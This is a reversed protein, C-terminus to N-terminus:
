EDPNQFLEGQDFWTVHGISPPLDGYVMAPNLTSRLSLPLSNILQPVPHVSGTTLVSLPRLPTGVFPVSTAAAYPPLRAQSLSSVVAPNPPSPCMLSPVQAGPLSWIGLDSHLQAPSPSIEPAPGRLWSPSVSLDDPRSQSLAGSSMDFRSHWRTPSQHITAGAHVRWQTRTMRFHVHLRTPSLPTHIKTTGTTRLPIPSQYALPRLPRLAVPSWSVSKKTRHKSKSVQIPSFTLLTNAYSEKPGTPATAGPECELLAGSCNPTTGGNGHHPLIATPKPAYLKAAPLLETPETQWKSPSLFVMTPSARLQTFPAEEEEEQFTTLVEEASNEKNMAQTKTPVVIVTSQSAEDMTFFLSTETGLAGKLNISSTAMNETTVVENDDSEQTAAITAVTSKSCSSLKAAGDADHFLHNLRLSHADSPKTKTNIKAKTRTVNAKVPKPKLSAAKKQNGKKKKKSGKVSNGGTVKANPKGKSKNSTAQQQQQQLGEEDVGTKPQISSRKPAVHHNAENAGATEHVIVFKTNRWKKERLAQCTKELARKPLVQCWVGEQEEVFRGGRLTVLDCVEQGIIAKKDNDCANYLAKRQEVLSRFFLNSFCVFLCATYTCVSFPSFWAILHSEIQNKGSRKREGRPLRPFSCPQKTLKHIHHKGHSSSL